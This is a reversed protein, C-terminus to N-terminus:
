YGSKSDHKSLDFIHRVTMQWHTQLVSSAYVLLFSPFLHSMIMTPFLILIYHPTITWFLMQSSHYSRQGRWAFMIFGFIDEEKMASQRSCLHSWLAAKIVAGGGGGGNTYIHLGCGMHWSPFLLKIDRESYKVNKCLSSSLREGAHVHCPDPLPCVNNTNIEAPPPTTYTAAVIVVHFYFDTPLFLVCKHTFCM